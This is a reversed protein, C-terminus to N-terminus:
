ENSLKAIVNRIKGEEKREINDIETIYFWKMKEKVLSANTRNAHSPTNSTISLWSITSRRALLKPHLPLVLGGGDIRRM